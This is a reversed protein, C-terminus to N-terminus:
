YNGHGDVDDGDEYIEDEITSESLVSVGTRSAKLDNGDGDSAPIEAIIADNMVSQREIDTQPAGEEDAVGRIHSDVDDESRNTKLETAKVALLLAVFTIGLSVMVIIAINGRSINRENTELILSTVPLSEGNGHHAANTHKKNSSTTGGNSHSADFTTPTSEEEQVLMGDNVSKDDVPNRNVASSVRMGIFSVYKVIVEKDDNGDEDSVYLNHQMGFRILRHLGSQISLELDPLSMSNDDHIGDLLGTTNLYIRIGGSIPICDTKESIAADVPVICNAHNPDLLDEPESSIALIRGLDEDSFDHQYNRRMSSSNSSEELNCGRSTLGLVEALHELVIIELHELAPIPDGRNRSKPESIMSKKSTNSGGDASTSPSSPTTADEKGNVGNTFDLREADGSNDIYHIEYDYMVTFNVTSTSAHIPFSPSMERIMDELDELGSFRCGGFFTAGCYEMDKKYLDNQKNANNFRTIVNREVDDNMEDLDVSDLLEDNSALLIGRCPSLYIDYFLSEGNDEEQDLLRRDNQNWGGNSFRLHSAEDSGMTLTAEALLSTPPLLIQGANSSLRM